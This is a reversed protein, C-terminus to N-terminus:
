VRPTPAVQEPRGAFFDYRSNAKQSAAQPFPSISKRLFDRSSRRSSARLRAVSLVDSLLVISKFQSQNALLQVKWNLHVTNEQSTLQGKWTGRLCGLWYEWDLKWRNQKAYNLFGEYTRGKSTQRINNTFFNGEVKLLFAEASLIESSDPRMRGLWAKWKCLNLQSNQSFYM